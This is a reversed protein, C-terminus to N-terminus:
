GTRLKALGEAYLKSAQPTSPLAARVGAQDQSNLQGADCKERLQAGASSVLDFLNSEAGTEKVSILTEGAAVDQLHLDVRLKGGPLAVYSGLVVLDAGLAKGVQSLTQAALTDSDPLSLNMKMQAVEEGPITRLKEGAALETTLMEPLATSLWAAEPRSTSNKFDLVAVARRRSLPLNAPKAVQPKGRFHVYSLAGLLLLVVVAVLAAATRINKKPPLPIPTTAPIPGLPVQSIPMTLRDLDVRLERASQYRREPDKDLCKLIAVELGPSIKPNLASPMEPPKNMIADILRPVQAFPFPRRGTALEYLVAGASWLDSRQDTLDGRLQEPSMYPLTGTVNKTDSISATIGLDTEQRVFQALGFDLIKLRHDETLRMNAPKLDRHIVGHEHASALGDALQFGLRLVEKQTLPGSALRADVAVGGVYEMVLFDLGEQSGFEYVTGINPHNLKALALAERRFRKRAAEDALMGPPLVKIAVDRELQQDSARFVLGMGGAGIQELVRYHGIIQGVIPTEPAM